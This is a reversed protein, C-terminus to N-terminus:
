KMLMFKKVETYGPTVFRYIYMGSALGSANFNVRYEGAEHEGQALTAIEKGLVDYVKLSVNSRAALSYSITTTPNFPNPFNQGLGYTLPTEVSEDGVATITTWNAAAADANARLDDLNEGGLFAFGVTVTENPNISYPGASLIMSWDSRTSGETLVFPQSLFSFKDAENFGNYIYTPNDVARYTAATSPHVLSVGYFKTVSTDAWVYGLKRSADYSILNTSADIVDWDAFVGVYANDILSGTINKIDYRVTVFDNNPVASYTYSRQTVRLGVRSAASLGSDTFATHIVRDAERETSFTFAGGSAVRFDVQTASTTNGYANDALHSADKGVMVSAHFLASPTGAPYQFGDGMSANTVYNYYGLSGFNSVSFRINNERHSTFSPNLLITFGEFDIYAGDSFEFGLVVSSNPNVTEKVRVVFPASSNDRSELTGMAGVAFNGSLVAVKTTDLSILKIMTSSSTPSLYNRFSATVYITEGPDGFGSNNGSASDDVVLSTVRVSPSNRTLAKLANIRGRGLKRKWIQNIPLSDINDSNVRVQEAVQLNTYSPFVAKVLGALGAAHPSAMSTGSLTNYANPYFTNYIAQGPAMVDISPGYSSNTGKKDNQDTYGVSLVGAYSAPFSPTEGSSNGAAAVIVCGRQVAYTIWDQEAYSFGPGGWSCNVVDAGMNAAYIIGSFGHTIYPGGLRSDNDSAVKVPLIKTKYGVGAVGAGNNTVASAIGAVHTGHSLSTSTPVPANDETPNMYDSGAFDWGRWDDIKGNSDDDIGNTRKDNSNGDTGTEGPNNWINAALDSHDVQVGTDIIGIVVSTDGTSICWATDAKIKALGWQQSAFSPDNPACADVPYIFWPEAYEVDPHAAIEKSLSFPDMPSSYTAVYFASLNVGGDSGSVDPFMPQISQVRFNRLFMDLSASVVATGKGLGESQRVKVIVRDTLIHSNEATKSPFGNSVPNRGPSKGSSVASYGPIVVSFFLIFSVFFKM